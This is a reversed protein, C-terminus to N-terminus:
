DKLGLIGSNSILVEAEEKSIETFTAGLQKWREKTEENVEETVITEAGPDLFANGNTFLMVFDGGNKVRYYNSPEPKSKSKATTM